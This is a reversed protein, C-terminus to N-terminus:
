AAVPKPRVADFAVRLAGLAHFVDTRYPPPDITLRAGVLRTAVTKLTISAQLRALAGGLCAHIGSGFALHGTAVRTIDFRDPDAFRAPDRNAAALWLVMTTGRAIRFGGVELDDLAVRRTFPFPADYRLAEEIARDALTPDAALLALQDPHRLLALLGNGILNVTTEYGAVFLLRLTSGVEDADLRDGNNEAALLASVLDDGPEAQRREILQDFYSGLQVQLADAELVDLGDGQGVCVGIGEFNCCLQARPWAEVVSRDEPPIGLLESIVALPLPWALRSIADLQGSESAVDLVDDFFGQVVPRLREFRSAGLVRAALRRLRTHEPPDRHLFSREELQSLWGSSLRGAAALEQHGTSHRDDSSALPHHLVGEVDDYRVLSVLGGAESVPLDRRLRALTPYPDASFGVGALEQALGPGAEPLSPPAPLDIVNAM